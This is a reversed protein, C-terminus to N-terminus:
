NKLTKAISFLSMAKDNIEASLQNTEALLFLNDITTNNEAAMLDLEVQIAELTFTSTNLRNKFSELIRERDEPLNQKTLSEMIEGTYCLLVMRDAPFGLIFTM